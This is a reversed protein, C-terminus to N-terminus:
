QTELNREKLEKKANKNSTSIKKLKDQADALSVSFKEEVTAKMSLHSVENNDAVKLLYKIIIKLASVNYSTKKTFYSRKNRSSFVEGEFGSRKGLWLVQFLNIIAEHKSYEAHPQADLEKHLKQYNRLHSNAKMSYYCM